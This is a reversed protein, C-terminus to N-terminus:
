DEEELYYIRKPNLLEWPLVDGGRERLMEMFAEPILPRYNKWATPPPTSTDWDSCTSLTGDMQLVVLTAM